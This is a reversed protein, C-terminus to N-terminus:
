WSWGGELVLLWWCEVLLGGEAEAEAEAEAEMMTMM